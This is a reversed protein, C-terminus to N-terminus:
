RTKAAERLRKLEAFTETADRLLAVIGSIGGNEGSVPAITFQISLRDGAKTTAPVSLVEEPAHSPQGTEMVKRYGQWHRERLREPIIIDLSQGLAEEESFGFIRAAGANWYRILGEADSYVIADPLDQLLAGGLRSLFAADTSASATSDPMAASGEQSHASGAVPEGLYAPDVEHMFCPPSAFEGTAHRYKEDGM